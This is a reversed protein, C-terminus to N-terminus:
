QRGVVREACPFAPAGMYRPNQTWPKVELRPNGGSAGFGRHDYLLVVFGASCFAEAYKDITMFRTASFGHAMVVAPAPTVDPRFIWGRLSAGLSQFAVDSRM